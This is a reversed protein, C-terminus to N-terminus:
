IALIVQHSSNINRLFICRILISLKSNSGVRCPHSICYWFIGFITTYDYCFSSIFSFSQCINTYTLKKKYRQATSYALIRKINRFPCLKIHHCLPKFFYEFSFCIIFSCFDFLFLVDVQASISDIIAM